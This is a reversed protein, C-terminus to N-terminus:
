DLIEAPWMQKWTSIEELTKLKRVGGYFGEAESGEERHDKRSIVARRWRSGPTYQNFELVVSDNLHCRCHRREGSCSDNHGVVGYWWGYPFESNRRWQIEVKDGPYLEYLCDSIYLDHAATDVPPSRLREWHIGEEIVASRKGHPPYRAQFTDTVSNYNVEADYCSLIFGVHGHERNYVQAPFWLRGEELARYWAMMSDCPMSGKGRRSSSGREARLWSLSRICLWDKQKSSDSVGAESSMSLVRQWERYAAPGVLKGWKRKLHPEWLHDSTCRERFDTCVAAMRCLSGPSLRSLISELALDPLDLLSFSPTEEVNEIRQHTSGRWCGSASDIIFKANGICNLLLQSLRVTCWLPLGKMKAKGCGRVFLMLPQLVLTKSVLLFSLFSILFLLM